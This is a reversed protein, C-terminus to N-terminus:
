LGSATRQCAKVSVDFGIVSYAHAFQVALPLGVYGLGIVLVSASGYAGHGAAEKRTAVMKASGSKFSM